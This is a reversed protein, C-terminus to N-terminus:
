RRGSGSIAERWSRVEPLRDDWPHRPIIWFSGRCRRGRIELRDVRVGDTTLRYLFSGADRYDQDLDVGRLGYVKDVLGLPQTESAILRGVITPMDRGPELDSRLGLRDPSYHITM